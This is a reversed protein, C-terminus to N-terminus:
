TMDKSISTFIQVYWFIKFMSRTMVIEKNVALVSFLKMLLAKLVHAINNYLAFMIYRCAHISSSIRIITRLTSSPSNLKACM